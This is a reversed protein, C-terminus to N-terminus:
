KPRNICQKTVIMVSMCGRAWAEEMSSVAIYHGKCDYEWFGFYQVLTFNSNAIEANTSTEISNVNAVAPSIVVTLVLLLSIIIKKM